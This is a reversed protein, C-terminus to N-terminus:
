QVISAEASEHIIGPMYVVPSEESFEPGALRDEFFAAALRTCEM